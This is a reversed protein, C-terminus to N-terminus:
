LSRLGDVMTNRHRGNAKRVQGAPSPPASGVPLAAQWLLGNIDPAILYAAAQFTPGVCHHLLHHRCMDFREIELEMQCLITSHMAFRQGISFLQARILKLSGIDACESRLVGQASSTATM